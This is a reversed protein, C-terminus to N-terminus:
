LNMLYWVSFGILFLIGAYSLIKMALSPRWEKPTHKGSILIFNIIAYFPATSFSLMTAINVLTGMGHM